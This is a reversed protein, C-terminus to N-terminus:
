GSERIDVSCLSWHKAHCEQELNWGVGGRLLYASKTIEVVVGKEM